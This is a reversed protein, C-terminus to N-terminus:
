RSPPTPARRVRPKSGGSSTTPKKPQNLGPIASPTPRKTPQRPNAPKKAAPAAKLALFKEEYEVTGKRGDPTSIVVTTNKNSIPDQRVSAVTFGQENKMGPLLHLRKGREKKNILIVSYGGAIPSVGALTYDDVKSPEDEKIKPPPKVTIPSKTWLTAYRGKPQKKPLADSMANGAFCLLALGTVAMSKLTHNSMTNIKLINTRRGPRVM